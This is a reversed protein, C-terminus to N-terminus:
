AHLPQTPSTLIKRHNITTATTRVKTPPLRMGSIIFPNPSPMRLKFSPMAPDDCVGVGGACAGAGGGTSLGASSFFYTRAACFNGLSTLHPPEHPRGKKENQAAMRLELWCWDGAMQKWGHRSCNLHKAESREPHCECQKLTGASPSFQPRAGVRWYHTWLTASFEQGMRFVQGESWYGPWLKANLM